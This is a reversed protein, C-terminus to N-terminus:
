FSHNIGLSIGVQSTQGGNALAAIGTLEAHDIDAYFNTRNSLAYTAGLIAFNRRALEDGSAELTTRYYGITLGINPTVNYNAGIWLNKSAYDITPIASDTKTRIYGGSLRVEGLQYAAGFTIQDQDQFDGSGNLSVDPKQRTYAGAVTFPGTIYALAIAQSAGDKTSGTTEGFSYELGLMIAGVRGIYQVDNSFRTGGQTGFPNGFTNGDANGASAGALPIIHVYHYQFPDYFSIVKCSLSPMRGFDIVGFSPSDFGIISYRNFLLNQDTDLAGTGLNFGTELQFHVNTGSGLDESGKVGIRNNYFEGNSSLKVIDGAASANSLSRIGGDMTGYLTVASQAHSNFAFAASLIIAFRITKM